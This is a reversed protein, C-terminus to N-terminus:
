GPVAFRIGVPTTEAVRQDVGDDHIAIGEGVVGGARHRARQGRHVGVRGDGVVPEGAVGSGVEAAGQPNLIFRQDGGAGHQDLAVGEEVVAGLPFAAGDVSEKLGAVGPGHAPAGGVGDDVIFEDAIGREIRTTIRVAVQVAGIATRQLDDAIVVPGPFEDHPVVQEVAVGGVVVAGDLEVLGVDDELVVLDDVVRGAVAIGTNGTLMHAQHGAHDPTVQDAVVGGHAQGAAGGAACRNIDFIGAARQHFVVPDYVVIAIAAARQVQDPGVRLDDVIRKQVVGGGEGTTGRQIQVPIGVDEVVDDITVGPADPLVFGSLHDPNDVVVEEVLGGAQHPHHSGLQGAQGLDIALRKRGAVQFSIRLVDVAAAVIQM